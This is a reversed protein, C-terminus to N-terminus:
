DGSAIGIRITLDGAPVAVNSGLIINETGSLQKKFLRNGTSAADYIAVWDVDAAGESAGFDTDADSAVENDTGSSPTAEFNILVRGASRVTTTVETGGSDPDGDFLALYLGSPSSIMSEGLLWRLIKNGLYRTIQEM